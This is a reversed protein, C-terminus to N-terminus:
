ALKLAQGLAMADVRLSDGFPLLPIGGCIARRSRSCRMGRHERNPGLIVDIVAQGFRAMGPRVSLDFAHVARELVRRDPAIVVVGVVLQPAVQAVEEGSVVEGAPELGQAAEGRVLVDALYKCAFRLAEPEVRGM